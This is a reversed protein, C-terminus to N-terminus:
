SFFPVALFVWRAEDVVKPNLVDNVLTITGERQRAREVKRFSM